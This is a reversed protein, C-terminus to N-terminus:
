VKKEDWMVRICLEQGIPEFSVRRMVGVSVGAVIEPVCRELEKRAKEVAVEVAKKIECEIADKIALEISKAVDM